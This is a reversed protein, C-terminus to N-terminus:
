NMMWATSRVKILRQRFNRHRLTKNMKKIHDQSQLSNVSNMKQSATILNQKHLIKENVKKVQSQPQKSEMTIPNIRNTRSNFQRYLSIEGRRKITETYLYRLILQYSRKCFNMIKSIKRSFNRKSYHAFIMSTVDYHMINNQFLM